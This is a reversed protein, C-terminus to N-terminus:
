AVLSRLLMALLLVLQAGVVQAVLGASVQGATFVPAAGVEVVTTGAAVDAPRQKLPSYRIGDMTAPVSERLRRWERTWLSALAPTTGDLRVLRVRMLLEGLTAGGLLRAATEAAFALCFLLAVFTAMNVIRSTGESALAFPARGLQTMITRYTFGTLVTGAVLTSTDIARSVARRPLGVTDTANVPRQLAQCARCLTGRTCDVCAFTGCRSCAPGVKEAHEVCAGVVEAM